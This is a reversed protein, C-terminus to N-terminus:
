TPTYVETATTFVEYGRGIDSMNFNNVGSGRAHSQYNELENDDWRNLQTIYSGNVTGQIFSEANHETTTYPLGAFNKGKLSDSNSYLSLNAPTTIAYGTITFNESKTFFIEYGVGITLNFNNVGSGRPHSQYNELENDDWRNLQTLYSSNVSEQLFQEANYSKNCALTVFNKGKLTDSNSYLRYEYKCGIESSMNTAGSKVAEVKYFYKQSTNANYDTWNLSTLGTVYPTSSFNDVDTTRYINYTTAEVDTWNLDASSDDPNTQIYLIPANIGEFSANYSCDITQTYYTPTWSNIQWSPIFFITSNCATAEDIVYSISEGSNLQQYSETHEASSLLKDFSLDYTNYKENNTITLISKGTLTPHDAVTFTFPEQSRIELNCNTTNAVVRHHTFNYTLQTCSVNYYEGNSLGSVDQSVVGIRFWYGGEILRWFFTGNVGGTFQFIEVRGYTRVPYDQYTCTATANTADENPSLFHGINWVRLLNFITVSENSIYLQSNDLYNADGHGYEIKCDTIKIDPICVFTFSASFTSNSTLYSNYKTNETCSSPSTITYEKTASPAIVCNILTSNVQTCSTSNLTFGAPVTANVEIAFNNNNTLTQTHQRSEGPPFNMRYSFYDVSASVSM